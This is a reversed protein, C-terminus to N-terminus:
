IVGMSRMLFLWFTLSISSLLTTVVVAGSTLTGEHGMNKAMIYSSPTTPAGLMILLSVMHEARFGLYVALPLFIACQVFLRIFSALLVPRLHNLTARSEFGAGLGILALPTALVALNNCTKTMIGPLPIRLLSTLLGLLIGLIIPNTVVDKLSSLFSKTDFHHQKSGTFSLLLVATINYLPVSGIIMLPAISAQGYINQIFALGLVAASGRYSAQVFEGIITKDRCFLLSLGLIAAICVLTTFFCFLVYKTDWVEYFDAHYLDLFLLAPLTVKFNFKNCVRVFEDSFMHLQKLIYGIVITLFIPLTVNLSFILNDM